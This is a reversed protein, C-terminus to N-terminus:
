AARDGADCCACALVLSGCQGRPEAGGPPDTRPSRAFKVHSTIPQISTLDQLVIHTPFNEGLDVRHVGKCRDRVEFNEDFNAIKEPLNALNKSIKRSIRVRPAIKQFRYHM